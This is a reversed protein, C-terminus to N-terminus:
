PQPKRNRAAMRIRQSKNSDRTPMPMWCLPTIAYPKWRVYLPGESHSWRTPGIGWWRGLHTNPAIEEAGLAMWCAVMVNFHEGNPTETVIIETGDKPATSMPRWKSRTM